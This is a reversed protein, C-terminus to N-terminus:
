MCSLCVNHLRMASFCSIVLLLIWPDFNIDEYIANVSGQTIDQLQDSGNFRFM